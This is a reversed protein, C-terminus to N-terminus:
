EKDKHMEYLFKLGELTLNQEFIDISQIESQVLNANGGTVAVKFDLGLDQKIKSIIANVSEKYLYFMGSRISDETNKGIIHEPKFLNTHSLLDASQILKNLATYIGPMILTGLLDKSKTIVGIVLATGFSIFICNENYLRNVAIANALIDTGLKKPNDIKINLDHEVESAIVPILKIYKEIFIAMQKTVSRVVSSIIAGDIEKYDIEAYQFFPLIKSAYEDETFKKSTAIRWKNILQNGDFVGITVDTNGIDIALLM